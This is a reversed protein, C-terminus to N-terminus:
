DSIPVGGCSARCTERDASSGRPEWIVDLAHLTSFRSFRNSFMNRQADRISRKPRIIIMEDDIEWVNRRKLDIGIDIAAILQMNRKSARLPNM